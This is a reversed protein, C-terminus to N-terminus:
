GQWPLKLHRFVTFSSNNQQTDNKGQQLKLPIQASFTPPVISCAQGRKGVNELERPPADRNQKNPSSSTCDLMARLTDPRLLLDETNVWLSPWTRGIIQKGGSDKPTNRSQNDLLCALPSRAKKEDKFHFFFFIRLIRYRSAQDEYDGLESNLPAAKAGVTAIM